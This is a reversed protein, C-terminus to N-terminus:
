KLFCRCTTENVLTGRNTMWKLLFWFYQNIAITPSVFLNSCFQVLSILLKGWIGREVVNRFAYTQVPINRMWLTYYMILVGCWNRCCTPFNLVGPSAWNCLIKVTMNIFNVTGWLFYPSSFQRTEENTRIERLIQYPNIQMTEKQLIQDKKLHCHM